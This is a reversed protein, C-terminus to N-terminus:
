FQYRLIAVLGFYYQEDVSLSFASDSYETSDYWSARAELAVHAKEDIPYSVGSALRITTQADHDDGSAFQDQTTGGNASYFSKFNTAIDAVGIGAGVYPVLPLNNGLLLPNFDWYALVMYEDISFDGLSTGCSPCGPHTALNAHAHQRTDYSVELRLAGAHVGFGIGTNLGGGLNGFSLSGQTAGQVSQSADPSDLSYLYGIATQLYFGFRDRDKSRPLSLWKNRQGDQPPWLEGVSHFRYTYDLTFNYFDLDAFETSADAGDPQIDADDFTTFRLGVGFMSHRSLLFDVGFIGQFGLLSSKKYSSEVLSNGEVGVSQADFKGIGLGLGVYPRLRSGIPIHFYGNAFLQHIQLGYTDNRSDPGIDKLARRYTYELETSFHGFLIGGALSAIPAPQTDVNGCVGTVDKACVNIQGTNADSLGVGLSIYKPRAQATPSLVMGGIVTLTVMIVMSMALSWRGSQGAHQSTNWKMASM